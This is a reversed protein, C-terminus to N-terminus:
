KTPGLQAGFMDPDDLAQDDSATQVTDIGVAIEDVYQLPDTFVRCVANCFQSRPEPLLVECGIGQAGVDVIELDLGDRRTTLV